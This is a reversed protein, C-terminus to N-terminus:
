RPRRTYVVRFLSLAVACGACEHELDGDHLPETHVEHGLSGYLEIMERLRPPGGIFRRAWGDSALAADRDRVRRSAGPGLELEVLAGKAAHAPDARTPRPM